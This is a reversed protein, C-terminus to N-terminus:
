KGPEPTTKGPETPAPAPAPAPKNDGCGVMSVLLTGGMVFTCMWAVFRKM